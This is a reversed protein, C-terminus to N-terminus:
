DSPFSTDIPRRPKTPDGPHQPPTPPPLPRGARPALAPAIAPTEAPTEASPASLEEQPRELKRPRTHAAVRPPEIVASSSAHLWYWGSAVAGAALCLVLAAALPGASGAGGGTIQTQASRAGPASGYSAHASRLGSGTSPMLMTSTPAPHAEQPPRVSGLAPNPGTRDRLRTAVLGSGELPAGAPDSLGSGSGSGIDLKGLLIPAVEGTRHAGAMYVQIKSTVTARVAGFMTMMLEGIADPLVVMGTSAIYRELAERMELATQYRRRPDKELATAIIDDLFPDLGRAVTSARPIEENLMRYMVAGSTNGSFLRRKTALEWCVAGMAFVDVRRDVHEERAQEPAMYAAKGKIAGAETHAENGAAKAVGFDVLKTQGDYTVFVNQPSV